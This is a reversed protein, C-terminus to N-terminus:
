LNSFIEGCNRLHFPKYDKSNKSIFQLHYDSYTFFITKRQIKVHWPEKGREFRFNGCLITFLWDFQQVAEQIESNLYLLSSVRHVLNYKVRDIM